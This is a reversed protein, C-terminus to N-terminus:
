LTAVAPAELALAFRFSLDGECWQPYAGAAKNNYLVFRGGAGSAPLGTVHPLFPQGGPCYLPADFTTLRYHWGTAALGRVGTIAHLQRNGDSVVNRPEIEVGMKCLLKPELGHHPAFTFFGAEPLRNAGKGILHLDVEIGEGRARYGILVREPAGFATIAEPALRAGVWLTDGVMAARPDQMEFRGSTGTAAAALGAKEYAPRFAHETLFSALYGEIDAASFGEHVFGFLGPGDPRAAFITESGRRLSRLVGSSTDFSLTLAGLRHEGALPAEPRLDPAAPPPSLVARIEPPLARTAKLIVADKEAWSDELLRFAGGAARAASFARRDWADSDRLFVASDLGWSPEALELLTAGLRHREEGEPLAAHLRQAALFAALRKPAAGPGHIMTDGIEATVLPLRDRVPALAEWFDELTAARPELGYREGLAQCTAIVEAVDPPAGNPAVRASALGIELGMPRITAADYGAMAVVIESGKPSRWRFVPPVDPTPLAPDVQLHLFDVGAAALIDVAGISLGQLGTMAACRTRRGFRGDLRLAIGLAEAFLEPSTLEAHLTFPLAHWAVRGEEIAQELRAVEEPEQTALHDAIVWADVTWVFGPAGDGDRAVLAATDLAMPIIHEHWRRRVNMALASRGLRLDPKFLVYLPGSM